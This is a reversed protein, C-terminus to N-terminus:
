DSIPQDKLAELHEELEAPLEEVQPAPHRIRKVFAPDEV